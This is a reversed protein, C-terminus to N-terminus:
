KPTVLFFLQSIFGWKSLLMVLLVLLLVALLVYTSIWNKAEYLTPQRKNAYKNQSKRERVKTATRVSANSLLTLNTKLKQRAIRAQLSLEVAM